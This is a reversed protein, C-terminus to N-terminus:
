EAEAEYDLSEFRLERMECNTLSLCDLERQTVCLADAGACAGESRDLQPKKKKKKKRKELGARVRQVRQSVLVSERLDTLSLYHEKRKIKIKKKMKETRTKQKKKKKPKM